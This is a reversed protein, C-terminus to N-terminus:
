LDAQKEQLGLIGAKRDFAVLVTGNSYAEADNYSFRTLMKGDKNVVGYTEGDLTIASVDCQFGGHMVDTPDFDTTYKKTFVEKGEYDYCNIRGKDYVLIRGDGTFVRQEEASKLKLLENGKEDLIARSDGLYALFRFEKDKYETIPFIM